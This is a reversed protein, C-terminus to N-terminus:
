PCLLLVSSASGSPRKGYLTPARLAWTHPILFPLCSVLQIQCTISLILLAKVAIDALLPLGFFAYGGHGALSSFQRCCALLLSLYEVVRKGQDDGSATGPHGDRPRLSANGRGVM